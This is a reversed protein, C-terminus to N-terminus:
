VTGRRENVPLIFSIITGAGIQSEAWIKGKHAYIIEKSIALGLGSGGATKRMDADFQVFEQFLNKMDEKKIGPGTDRVSARVYNDGQATSFTVSGKETFKIANNALNLIVQLIKDRDCMVKQVNQDLDLIFNLGKKAAVAEMTDRAEEIIRNLDNYEMAFTAKGAELKQFDLVDNILRALRDVSRKALELFSKQEENVPGASGDLVINIGEKVSTLPTRLEHSVRATFSSKIKLSEVLKEEAEIRRKVEKDLDDRSATISKLDDTMKNFSRALLGIEDSSKIDVKFDLNGRSIIRASDQLKRIPKIIADSFILAAAASLLLVILSVVIVQSRLRRVPAFAEKVDIKAVLGWDGIPIYEYAALVSEGRYDLGTLIGSGQNVAREMPEAFEASLPVKINFPLGPMHRLPTLYIISGAEKIGLNLEGTEGLGSYDALVAMLRKAEMRVKLVGITKEEPEDSFTLIPVFVDYVVVGEDLFLDALYLDKRGEAFSKEKSLDAGINEPVSSALVVGELGAVDIADIFKVTYAAEQLAEVMEEIKPGAELPHEQIYSLNTRLLIRSAVLSAQECNLEVLSTIRDAKSSVLATLDSFIRDELMRKINVFSILSILAITGSLLVLIAAVLKLRLSVKAKADNAM